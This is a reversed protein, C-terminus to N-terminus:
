DRTVMSRRLAALDADMRTIAAVADSAHALAALVLSRALTSVPLERAKALRELQELEDGNVRTRLARAGVTARTVAIGAPLPAHDDPM